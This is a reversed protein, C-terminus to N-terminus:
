FRRVSLRFALFFKLSKTSLIENKLQYIKKMKESFTSFRYLFHDMLLFTPTASRGLDNFGSLAKARADICSTAHSNARATLIRLFLQRSREQPGTFQDKGATALFFKNEDGSFTQQYTLSTPALQKQADKSRM